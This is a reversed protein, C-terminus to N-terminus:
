WCPSELAELFKTEMERASKLVFSYLHTILDRDPPPISCAAAESASM